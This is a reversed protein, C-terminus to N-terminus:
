AAKQKKVQMFNTKITQLLHSYAVASQEFCDIVLSQIENPLSDILKFAKEVHDEDEEAHVKLFSLSNEPYYEKLISVIKPGIESAAIELLLIYGLLAYPSQHEVKYYMSEYLMKTAPLESYDSIDHGLAKLDRLALLQHNHEESMHKIFRNRSALESEPFRAASSCLLPISHCVFYYSQSLYTAYCNTEEWPFDVLAEEILRIGNKISSKNM